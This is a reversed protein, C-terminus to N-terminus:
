RLDFLYSANSLAVVIKCNAQDFKLVKYQFRRVNDLNSTAPRGPFGDDEVMM